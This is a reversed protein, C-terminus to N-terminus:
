EEEPGKPQQEEFEEDDNRQKVLDVLARAVIAVLVSCFGVAFGTSDPHLLWVVGGVVGFLVVFKVAVLGGSAGDPRVARRVVQSTLWFNAAGLVGGIAVAQAMTSGHRWAAWGIAGALVVLNLKQIRALESGADDSM